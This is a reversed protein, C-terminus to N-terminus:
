FYLSIDDLLRQSKRRALSDMLASESRAPLSLATELSSRFADENGEAVCVSAAYSFFPGPATANTATKAAEFAARAKEKSGGLEAPLSGYMTIALEHLGGGNWDPDLAIAREFLVIAGAILSANDFDMPNSAFASLIAAVTWYLLPMDKKGFKSLQTSLISPDSYDLAFFDPSRGAVLPVLLAAARRYLANARITLARKEAYDEDPLLFAEGELFASAYMVYLSATTLTKGPNKPDALLLGESVKMLAPLSAQALAPDPEQMFVATAYDATKFVTCSCLVTIAFLPM